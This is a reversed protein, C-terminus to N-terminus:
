EDFDFKGSRPATELEMAEFPVVRLVEDLTTAGVRVKEMADEQMLQMGHARAVIRIADMSLNERIADRVAQDVVLLEVRNYAHQTGL